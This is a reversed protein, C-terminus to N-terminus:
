FSLENGQALRKINEKHKFCIILFMFLIVFILKPNIYYSVIAASFFSSISALSVYRTIKFVMLWCFISIAFIKYDFMLLMLLATSVGKGGELKFFISYIHGIIVFLTAFYFYEETLCNKAFLFAIIGKMGDLLFVLFGFQIGLARTINTAGINGSGIKKIDIKQSKSIIYGFPISGIIYCSLSVLFLILYQM